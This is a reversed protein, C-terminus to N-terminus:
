AAHAVGKQSFSVLVPDNSNKSTEIAHDDGSAQRVAAMNVGHLGLEEFPFDSEEIIGFQDIQQSVPQVLVRLRKRCGRSHLHAMRLKRLATTFSGFLPPNFTSIREIITTGSGNYFSNKEEEVM